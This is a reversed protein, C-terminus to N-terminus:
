RDYRDGRQLGIVFLSFARQSSFVTDYIYLDDDVWVAFRSISKSDDRKPKVAYMRIIHGNVECYDHMYLEIRNIRCDDLWKKFTYKELM